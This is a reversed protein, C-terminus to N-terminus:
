LCQQDILFLLLNNKFIYIFFVNKVSSLNHIINFQISRILFFHSSFLGCMSQLLHPFLSLKNISARLAKRFLLVQLSGAFTLVESCAFVFFMYTQERNRTEMYPCDLGCPLKNHNLSNKKLATKNCCGVTHLILVTRCCKFRDGSTKRFSRGRIISSIKHERKFACKCTVNMTM